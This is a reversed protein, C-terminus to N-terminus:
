AAARARRRKAERREEDDTKAIDDESVAGRSFKSLLRAVPRSMRKTKARVVSSRSLGTALHAEELTGLPRSAVWVGWATLKKRQEPM